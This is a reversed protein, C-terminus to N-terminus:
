SNQKFEPLAVKLANEHLTSDADLFLVYDFRIHEMAIDLNRTKFGETGNRHIFKCSIGELMNHQNVYLQWRAIDKHS